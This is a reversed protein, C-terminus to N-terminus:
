HIILSVSEIADWVSSTGAMAMLIILLVAFALSILSLVVGAVAMGRGAPGKKIAVAGLILGIIALIVTIPYLCCSILLGIIGLVMSAAAM